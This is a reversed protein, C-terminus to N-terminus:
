MTPYNDKEAWWLEEAKRLYSADIRSQMNITREIVGKENLFDVTSQLSERDPQSLHLSIHGKMMARVNPEVRSAINFAKPNLRVEADRLNWESAEGDHKALHLHADMFSILLDPIRHSHTEVFDSSALVVVVERATKITRIRKEAEHQILSPDASILADIRGWERRSPKTALERIDEADREVFRVDRNPRLDAANLLKNLYKHELGDPVLAIRENDLNEISQIPSDAPVYISINHYAIRSIIKWNNSGALAEVAEVEGAFFVDIDSQRLYESVSEDKNKVVMDLAFGHQNAFKYEELAFAIQELPIKAPTWGLRVNLDVERETKCGLISITCLLLVVLSAIKRIENIITM